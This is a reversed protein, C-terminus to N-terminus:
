LWVNRFGTNRTLMGFLSMFMSPILCVLACCLSMVRYLARDQLNAFMSPQTPPHYINETSLSPGNFPYIPSEYCPEPIYAKAREHVIFYGHSPFDLGNVPQFPTKGLKLAQRALVGPNGV